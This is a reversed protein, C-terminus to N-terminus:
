KEIINVLEYTFYKFEGLLENIDEEKRWESVIKKLEELSIQRALEYSDCKVHIVIPKDFDEHTCTTCYINKM